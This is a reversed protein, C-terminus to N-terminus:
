GEYSWRVKRKLVKAAVDLVGIKKLFRLMHEASSISENCIDQVSIRVANIGGRKIPVFNRASLAVDPSGNPDVYSALSISIDNDFSLSITVFYGREVRELSILFGTFPIQALQGFSKWLIKLAEKESADTHNVRDYVCVGDFYAGAEYDPDTFSLPDINLHECFSLLSYKDRKIKKGNVYFRFDKYEVKM